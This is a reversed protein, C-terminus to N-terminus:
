EGTAESHQANEEEMMKMARAMNQEEVKNVLSYWPAYETDAKDGPLSGPKAVLLADVGLDLVAEITAPDTDLYFGIHHGLGILDRVKESKWVKATRVDGLPHTYVAAYGTFRERVLWSKVRDEYPDSSLLIIRSTPKMLNYLLRGAATAEYNLVTDSPPHDSLV